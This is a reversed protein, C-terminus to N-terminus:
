YVAMGSEMWKGLTSQSRTSFALNRQAKDRKKPAPENPPLIGMNANMPQFPTRLPDTITALLGGLMTEPPLAVPEEGKSVRAANFGALWGTASSELYGETGTLQGAIFIRSDARLQLTAKLVRPSDIYTNRHMSGLRLFEAEEMGPLQRFLRQQEGYKMKTQFGVLNYATRFRNETRLQIVAFPRRGTKPDELGVPKMPGFALTLKGRSAITEIPLCSEFYREEEFDHAMVVEAQTLEEVFSFYQEKDLPINLFDPDGKGYRSAYYMKELDLSELSVIPSIADYFYLSQSGTLRILQECLPKTTLPGTAVIVVGETPLETIENREIKIMPHEEIAKTIERSFLLRDVALSAGAPVANEFAKALVFANLRTLEDKLIRSASNDSLSGLSNSCVLEALDATSHAETKKTPRMECLRVPVGRSALQWAAESGALGGGVVVVEKHRM